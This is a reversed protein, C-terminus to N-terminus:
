MQNFFKYYNKLQSVIDIIRGGGLGLHAVEFNEKLLNPWTDDWNVWNDGDSRPLGLSDTGCLIRTKSLM